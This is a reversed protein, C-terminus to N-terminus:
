VTPYLLTGSRCMLRTTLFQIILYDKVQKDRLRFESKTLPLHMNRCNLIVGEYTRTGRVSTIM